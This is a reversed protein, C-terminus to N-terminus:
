TRGASPPSRQRHCQTAVRVLEGFDGSERCMDYFLGKKELLRFPTDMEAVRGQDMVLIRDYDIITKLRHAVTLISGQTFRSRITEQIKADTDADVSATAEDLFILRSSRLLARALCLLQKQGQSLNSGNEAVRADLSVTTTFPVASGDEEVKLVILTYPSCATSAM